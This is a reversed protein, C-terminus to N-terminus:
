LSKPRVKDWWDKWFLVAETRTEESMHQNSIPLDRTGTLKALSLIAENVVKPNPDDLLSIISPIIQAAGLHGLGWVAETRTWPSSDNVARELCQLIDNKDTESLASRNNLIVIVNFRFLDDGGHDYASVLDPVIEPRVMLEKVNPPFNDYYLQEIRNHRLSEILERTTNSELAFSPLQSRQEIAASVEDACFQLIAGVEDFTDTYQLNILVFVMTDLGTFGFTTETGWSLSLTNLQQSSVSPFHSSIRQKLGPEIDQIVNRAIEIKSSEDGEIEIPVQYSRDIIFECGSFLSTLLVFFALFGKM